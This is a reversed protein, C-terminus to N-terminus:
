LPLKIRFFDAVLILTSRFPYYAVLVVLLFMVFMYVVSVVISKPSFFGRGIGIVLSSATACMLSGLVTGVNPETLVFLPFSLIGMSVVLSLINCVNYICIEARGPPLEEDDNKFYHVFFSGLLLELALWLPWLSTIFDCVATFANSVAGFIGNLFDYVGKLVLALLFLIICLWIYMRKDRGRLIICTVIILLFRGM